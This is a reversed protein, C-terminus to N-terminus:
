PAHTVVGTKADEISVGMRQLTEGTARDIDVKAKEYATKAAVLASETIALAHQAVLTDYNSKAGLKQEEKTIDFTRQALDNSKQAADVRAQAQQLAFQSNRVDFHIFKKQEEYSIQKQRYEMVSRFQDAKAVRNRLNIQLNIGFQYEPSSYNFTNQLAGGIGGPLDSSCQDPGLSCNASKPGGLGAGAYFGYADLVPLLSSRVAALSAKANEMVLEDQAVDPRNKEAETILDDISKLSNPNPAGNLDLPVVSVSAILPDDSKTIANKILLENLRLNARSVTLDGESTAVDAEDKMVQLAPIANLKFQQQDNELTQQAFSLSRGKVQEDEYANVLDWYINEVQTVTAIVQLRFGLDTIQQNKRAIHMYRENTALGFGALLHQTLIVQFNSYLTPNIAEYPSNNAFRQGEYNVRLGTGLPFNQSFNALGEITNQKFILVGTQFSNGEVTVNHDVFGQFNLYPDFSAVATGAGLTSTVIGGNGAAASGSSAGASSANSSGFGGQTSSQIIGTNVGQAVGGAKTRMIETDAIPFNYRFYALDLNNEIALAIVDNLSVYLKGDRILSQLRPSNNLNLEPATSPRYPSLPKRSHPLEVYFPQQPATAQQQMTQALTPQAAPTATSSPSDPASAPPQTSQQAPAPELALALNAQLLLIALVAQLRTRIPVHTRCNMQTNFAKQNRDDKV